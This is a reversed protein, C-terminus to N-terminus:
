DGPAPPDSARVRAHFDSVPMDFCALLNPDPSERAYRRINSLTADLSQDIRQTINHLEQEIKARRKNEAIYDEIQRNQDEIESQLEAIQQKHQQERHEALDLRPQVVSMWLSAIVAAAGAFYILAKIYM